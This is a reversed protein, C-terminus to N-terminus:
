LTEIKRIRSSLLDRNKELLEFFLSAHYGDAVAHNCRISLKITITNEEQSYKSFTIIPLYFDNNELEISFSEYELWPLCSIPVSNEIQNDQPFLRTQTRYKSIDNRVADNFLFIDEQYATWLNIFTKTEDNLITYSPNVTEWYGLEGKHRTTKLEPIGNITHTILYLMVPYFSLGQRKTFHYLSTIDIQKTVNFSNRAHKSFHDFHEKRVWTKLDIKHFM